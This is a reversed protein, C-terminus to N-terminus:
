FEFDDLSEPQLAIPEELVFRKLGPGWPAKHDARWSRLWSFVDDDRDAIQARTPRATNRDFEARLSPHLNLRLMRTLWTQYDDMM